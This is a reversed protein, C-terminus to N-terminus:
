WNIKSLLIMNVGIKNMKPSMKAKKPKLDILAVNKKAPNTNPAAAM